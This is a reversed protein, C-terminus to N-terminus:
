SFVKSKIGWKKACNPCAYRYEGTKPNMKVAKSLAIVGGCYECDVEKVDEM